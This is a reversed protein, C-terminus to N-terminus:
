CPQLLVLAGPGPLSNRRSEFWAKTGLGELLWVYATSPLVAPLPADLVTCLAM